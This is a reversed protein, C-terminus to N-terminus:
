ATDMYATRLHGNHALGVVTTDCCPPTGAGVKARAHTNPRSRAGIPHQWWGFLAPVHRNPGAPKRQIHQSSTRTAAYRLLACTRTPPRSRHAGSHWHGVGAAIGQAHPQLGQVAGDGRM